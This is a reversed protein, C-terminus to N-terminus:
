YLRKPERSMFRGEPELVEEERAPELRPPVPTNIRAKIESCIRRRDAFNLLVDIPGDNESRIPDDCVKFHAPENCGKCRIQVSVIEDNQGREYEVDVYKMAERVSVIKNTTKTM